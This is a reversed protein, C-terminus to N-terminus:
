TIFISPTFNSFKKAMQFPLPPFHTSQTLHPPFPSSSFPSFSFSVPLIPHSPQYSLYPQYTPFPFLFLSSSYIPCIPHTPPNPLIPQSALSACDRLAPYYTLLTPLTSLTSLSFPIPFFSYLPHTPLIIPRYTSPYIPFSPIIPNLPHFPYIPHIPRYTM